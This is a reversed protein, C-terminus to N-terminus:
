HQQRPPNASSNPTSPVGETPTQYQGPFQTPPICGASDHSAWDQPFASAARVGTAPSPARRGMGGLTRGLGGPDRLASPRPASSGTSAGGRRSAPSSEPHPKALRSFLTPGARPFSGPGLVGALRRPQRRRAGRLDSGGGRTRRSGDPM